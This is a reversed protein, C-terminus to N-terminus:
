ARFAAIRDAQQQAAAAAAGLAGGGPLAGAVIRASAPRLRPDPELCRLILRALRPDTRPALTLPSPPPQRRRELIEQATAGPFAPRGTVVEYLVLGLSHLDSQPTVEEGALAEPAMYAPTGERSMLGRVVAAAEALGFDTIRAVGRGDIMVNSPKLDRHLIGREHAAALGSALQGAIALAEDPPLPGRAALRAALTDGEIYEMTLFHRGDAEVVDYVRCVNPHAVQRATRVENLLRSLRLPDNGVEGPLIKIAVTEDLKLDDARYVEGMGGRGAPAVIRYRGALVAGAPLAAGATVAAGAAGAAGASGAAGSTGAGRALTLTDPLPEAPTAGPAPYDAPPGNRSRDDAAM